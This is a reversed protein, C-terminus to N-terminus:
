FYSKPELRPPSLKGAISSKGDSRIGRTPRGANRSEGDSRIIRTPRLGCAVQQNDLILFTAGIGGFFAPPWFVNKHYSRTIISWLERAFLCISYSTGCDPLLHM